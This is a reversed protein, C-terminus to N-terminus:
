SLEAMLDKNRLYLERFACFQREYVARNKRNPVIRREEPNWALIDKKGVDGVALAALFADGYSAGVTKRCVTQPRGSIDSTAQSWVKNKTGGGVALLRKPLEGIERYTEIIHHTGCAIGELLARYLDGRSHTLNLGFIVGKANPDHIPTREGSFYPLMVLGRAGPPSAEAERALTAFAKAPELERAAFDRFWHTLTGSTSLGAMSAHEGKFLWPAYWLRSDSIRTKSLMITFITSGYMIMMDGPRIMGVSLAESAADITGAIVPTGPALGTARAARATVRGAIDTTWVLRPLRETEIIDPALETSWGQRDILYLPSFNAASYHDIVCEGTLKQVLYTTSTVIKAAKALIEPRNKRLWLIKPGVSQSTLANGCRELIRGPGIAANLEEIEKAARADVGYLAANSLAEGDSDVPLMCPGIASAGVARISKPDIRSDALMKQSIFTFDGWWDQKPRHEAWGPQPVLMKHPKSASAAIRGEGDVIVGKSEFTGIDIGLYYSM